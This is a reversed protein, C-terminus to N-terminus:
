SKHRNGGSLHTGAHDDLVVVLQVQDELDLVARGAVQAGEDLGLQAVDAGAGHELVAEAGGVGDFFHDDVFDGHLEEVGVAVVVVEHIRHVVLLGHELAGREAIGDFVERGVQLDLHAIVVALGHADLQGGGDFEVTTSVSGPRLDAVAELTVLGAM